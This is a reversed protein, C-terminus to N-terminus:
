KNIKEFEKLISTIDTPIKLELGGKVNYSDRRVKDVNALAIIWWLRIDNYFQNAMLDLRDGEITMVYIDSAKASISPYKLPKFFAKRKEVDLKQKTYKIRNRISM